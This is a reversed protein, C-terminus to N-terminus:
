SVDRRECAGDGYARWHGMAASMLRVQRQYRPCDHCVALHTRLLLREFAGLRRDENDSILRSVIRCPRRLTYQAISQLHRRIINM